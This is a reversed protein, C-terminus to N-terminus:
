ILRSSKIDPLNCHLTRKGCATNCVEEEERENDSAAFTDCFSTKAKDEEEEEEDEEFM